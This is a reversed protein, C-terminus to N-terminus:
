FSKSLTLSCDFVKPLAKAESGEPGFYGTGGLSITMLNKPTWSLKGRLALSLDDLNVLGSASFNLHANAIEGIDLAILAYDRYLAFYRDAWASADAKYLNFDTPLSYSDLRAFYSEGQDATLGDDQRLYEIRLTMSKALKSRSIDASWTGGLCFRLWSGEAASYSSDIERALPHDFIWALDGYLDIGTLSLKLAAGLIPLRDAQLAAKARLEFPYLISGAAIYLPLKELDDYQASFVTAASVDLNFDMFPLLGILEISDRGEIEGADAGGVPDWSLRYNVVDSPNWYGGDKWQLERRGFALAWGEGFTAKIWAQSIAGALSESADAQAWASVQGSVGRARFSLSYSSYASSALGWEDVDSMWRLFPSDKRAMTETAALSVSIGQIVKTEDLAAGTKAPAAGAGSPAAGAGSPAPGSSAGAVAEQAACPAAAAIAAAAIAAALCIRFSAGIPKM